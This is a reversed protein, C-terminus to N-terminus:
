PLLTNLESLITAPEQQELCHRHGYRCQREFCPACDLDSKVIAVREALPPTFDPSTSGYIVVLPTDVAAAIHMLGSDNTVVASAAAILDIAEVLQTKGALNHCAAHQEGPLYGIIREATDRDNASGLLWVQWGEAIKETAVAAYHREPWQKAEGFEAGPCLALVPQNTTLQYRNLTVQLQPSNVDLAPHPLTDPLPVGPKNALATFRQVMLPYRGKDLTRLDNLLGYRMEGQWGTRKAIGAFAPILASKLSNPLVIAEHYQGKLSRGLRYRVGLQLQGHGVPMAIGRRVEPMRELLPLSWAPALVDIPSDPQQIKLQKFLSQAMVMDGVWSPGVILTGHATSSM